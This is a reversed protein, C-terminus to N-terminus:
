NVLFFGFSSSCSGFMISLQCQLFHLQTNPARKHMSHFHFRLFDETTQWQLFGSFCLFKTSPANKIRSHFEQKWPVSTPMLIEGHFSRHHCMWFEGEISIAFHFRTGPIQFDRHKLPSIELSYWQHCRMDPVMKQSSHGYTLVVHSKDCRIKM